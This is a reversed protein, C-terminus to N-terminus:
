GGMDQLHRNAIHRFSESLRSDMTMRKWFERAMTEAHASHLPATSPAFAPIGAANPAYAMPLM